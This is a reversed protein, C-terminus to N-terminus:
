RSSRDKLQILCKRVVSDLNECRSVATEYHRNDLAAELRKTLDDHLGFSVMSAALAQEFRPRADTWRKQGQYIMGISILTNIIRDDDSGFCEVAKSEIKLFITDAAEYHEAKVFWRTLEVSADLIAETKKHESNLNTLLAAKAQDLAEEVKLNEGRREYLNILSGRAKLAQVALKEPHKECQAILGLLVPEVAEEKSEVRADALGLQYTVLAPEDTSVPISNTDKALPRRFPTTAPWNHRQKRTTSRDDSNSTSGMLEEYAEFTQFILTIADDIRSCSRFIDVVRLVHAVTKKHDIGFRAMHQECTWQVIADADNMRHHKAYFSILDYAVNNTHEHMPPLLNRLGDLVARFKNEAAELNGSYDLEHAEEHMTKLDGRTHGNWTVRFQPLLSTQSGEIHSAPVPILSRPQPHPITRNIINSPSPMENRPTNYTVGSPTPADDATIEHEKNKSRKVARYVRDVTMARNGVKFETDKEEHRKRKDAKKLMWQANSSSLYKSWGWEKVRDKYLKISAHFGFDEAMKTRTEELSNDEDIYLKEINARQANWDLLASRSRRSANAPPQETLQELRLIGEHDQPNEAAFFDQPHQLRTSLNEHNNVSATSVAPNFPWSYPYSTASFVTASRAELLYPQPNDIHSLTADESHGGWRNQESSPPPMLVSPQHQTPIPTGHWPDAREFVRDHHQPEM